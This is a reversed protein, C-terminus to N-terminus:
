LIIYTNEFGNYSFQPPKPACSASESICALPNVSCSKLDDDPQFYMADESHVSPDENFYNYPRLYFGVGNGATVTNPIDEAHPIHLFGLTVWAVLDEDKISENDIFNSFKVSPSWPDNQNYISSSQQEDSKYKTIALKYRAWNMSNHVGSKEPLYDGAFSIMQIRYAREHDWMNKKKSAIQIYRPMPEHLRFASQTETELVKKILKTQQLKWKPDWPANIDQFEM